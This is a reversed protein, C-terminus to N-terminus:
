PHIISVSFNMGGSPINGIDYVGACYSGGDVPDTIQATNGPM